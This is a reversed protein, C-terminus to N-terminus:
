PDKWFVIWSGFRRWGDDYFTTFIMNMCDHFIGNGTGKLRWVEIDHGRECRWAAIMEFLIAQEHGRDRECDDGM